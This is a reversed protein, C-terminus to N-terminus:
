AVVDCFFNGSFSTKWFITYITASGGVVLMLIGVIFAATFLIWDGTGLDYGLKNQRSALITLVAPGIIQSFPVVFATMLGVLTSLDPIFCLMLFSIISSPLSYVFWKAVAAKSGM